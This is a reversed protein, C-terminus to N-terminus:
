SRSQLDREASAHKMIKNIVARSKLQRGQLYADIVTRMLIKAESLVQPDTLKRSSLALLTQGSFQGDVAEVLGQGVNFDYKKLPEVPRQNDDYELQLGYGTCEMLNLEFQRLAAEVASGDSLCSLCEGYYGFVEPHPDYQHLFCVVLENIYFGCYLALGKIESIPQIMEVDTLMKLEAKGFYSILLPIFPQLMGATKSKTKRVGKALLSIRGFDRTLVDVILSTERYKRHQLIFAPQLYVASETM